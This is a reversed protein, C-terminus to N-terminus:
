VTGLQRHKNYHSVRALKEWDPSDAKELMPPVLDALSKLEIWHQRNNLVGELMPRFSEWQDVFIKVLSLNFLIYKSFM